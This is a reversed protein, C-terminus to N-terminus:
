FLYKVIIIGSSVMEYRINNFWDEAIFDLIYAIVKGLPFLICLFSFTGTDLVNSIDSVKRFFVIIGFINSKKIYGEIIRLINLTRTDINLLKDTGYHIVTLVKHNYEM